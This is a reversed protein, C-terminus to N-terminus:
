FRSQRCGNSMDLDIILIFNTVGSIPLLTKIFERRLLLRIVEGIVGTTVHAAGVTLTVDTNRKYTVWITSAATRSRRCRELEINFV